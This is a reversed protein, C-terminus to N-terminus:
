AEKGHSGGEQYVEDPHVIPVSLPISKRELVAGGLMITVGLSTKIVNDHIEHPPVMYEIVRPMKWEHAEITLFPGM